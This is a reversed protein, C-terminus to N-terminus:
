NPLSPGLAAYRLLLWRHADRAARLLDPSSASRELHRLLGASTVLDLVVAEYDVGRPLRAGAELKARIAAAQGRVLRARASGSRAQVRLSAARDRIERAEEVVSSIGAELAHLDDSM